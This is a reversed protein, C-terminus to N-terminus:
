VWWEIALIIGVVIVTTTAHGFTCVYLAAHKFDNM